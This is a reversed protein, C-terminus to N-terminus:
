YAYRDRRGRRRRFLYIVVGIVLLWLLISFGGHTFFLHLIYALALARAVSRLFGHSSGRRGVRAFGSRRRGFGGGGLHFGSGFHGRFAVLRPANAAAADPAASGHLATVSLVSLLSALVAAIIALRIM